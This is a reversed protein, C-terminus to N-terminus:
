RKRGHIGGGGFRGFSDMVLNLMVVMVMGQLPGLAGSGGDHRRFGLRRSGADPATAFRIAQAAILFIAVHAAYASIRPSQSLWAGTCPPSYRPSSLHFRERRYAIEIAEVGIPCPTGDAGGVDFYDCQNKEVRLPTRVTRGRVHRRWRNGAAQSEGWDIPPVM